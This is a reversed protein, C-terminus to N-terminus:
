NNINENDFAFESNQPIRLATGPRIIEDPILHNIKEFYELDIKYKKAILQASEGEKVIHWPSKTKNPYLNLAVRAFTPGMRYPVRVFYDRPLKKDGEFLKSNLGPNLQKLVEIDVDTEFSLERLDVQDQTLFMDYKLEPKEFIDGFYVKKNKYVHVAAVFEPYYNRSYFRYGPDRFGNIINAINNTGLQKIAKKMRGSGTNYANVALPWSKFMDYLETLFDAAAYTSFIPDKREDINDDIKLFRNGTHYIFQWMGVAKASSVAHNNFSSEIFPLRTLEVPLGRNAFINEMEDIYLGSEIISKKFQDAFGSYMAIYKEKKANKLKRKPYNEFVKYLRLEEDNLDFLDKESKVLSVRELMNSIRAKEERIYQDKLRAIDMPKLKLEFPNLQKLDLVSYVINVDGIYHFIFQDEGYEGFAKVWFQVMDQISDDVPFDFNSVQIKEKRDLPDGFRKEFEERVALYAQIEKKPEVPDEGSAKVRYPKLDKSFPIFEIDEEHDKINKDELIKKQVIQNESIIIEPAEKSKFLNPLIWVFTIMSIFVSIVLVTQKSNPEM